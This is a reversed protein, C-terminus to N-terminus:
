EREQTPQTISALADTIASDSVRSTSVALDADIDIDDAVAAAVQMALRETYDVGALICAARIREVFWDDGRVARAVKLLNSM